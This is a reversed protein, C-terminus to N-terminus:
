ERLIQCNKKNLNGGLDIKHISCLNKNSILQANRLVVFHDLEM